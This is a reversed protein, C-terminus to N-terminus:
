RGALVAEVREVQAILRSEVYAPEDHRYKHVDHHEACERAVALLKELEDRPVFVMASM